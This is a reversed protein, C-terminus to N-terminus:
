KLGGPKAFLREANEYGIKRATDPTLQALMVRFVAIRYEYYKLMPTHAVDTGIVFRGPFAEFLAKMEPVIKGGDDQV